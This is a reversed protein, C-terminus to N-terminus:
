QILSLHCMESSQLVQANSLRAIEIQTHMTMKSICMMRTDKPRHM